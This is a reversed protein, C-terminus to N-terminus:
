LTCCHGAASCCTANVKGCCWGVTTAPYGRDSLLQRACRWHPRLLIDAGISISGGQRNLISGPRTAATQIPLQPYTYEISPKPKSRTEKSQGASDARPIARLAYGTASEGHAARESRNTRHGQRPRRARNSGRRSARSPRTPATTSDTSENGTEVIHCHHTLRDLLATTMKADGFVSSWESFSLNTTIAVSTHEYLKSLLHFLLAGGAQSFPLYGLEDLIVLDMRMLSQAIRGAKGQAKEQELANVLDVTSYFRVRKGQHLARWGSPRPWTRRARALGALSCWTRRRTPSSWRPWSAIQGEDSGPGIKSAEFDFGALDRHIPFKAAKMQHSISRMARDTHEAQLLHEILWKSAVQSDGQAMLDTWAGAMGHLRLEKLETSVDCAHSVEVEMAPPRRWAPQRLPQHQGATGADTAPTEHEPLRSACQATGCTSFTSPHQARRVGGGSGGGGAGGGARQPCAPWCRRWSRDGGAHRM